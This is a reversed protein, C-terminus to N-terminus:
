REGLKLGDPVRLQRVGEDADHFRHFTTGSCGGLEGCQSRPENAHGKEHIGVGGAESREQRDREPLPCNLGHWLKYTTHLTSSSM